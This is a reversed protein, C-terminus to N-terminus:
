EEDRPEFDKEGPIVITMTARVDVFYGASRVITMLAQAIAGKKGIVKGRDSPAVKVKFHTGEDDNVREVDVQDPYLVLGSLMAVLWDKM